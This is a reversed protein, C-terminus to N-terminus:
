RSGHSADPETSSRPILGVLSRWSRVCDKKKVIIEVGERNKTRFEEEEVFRCEESINRLGGKPKPALVVRDM